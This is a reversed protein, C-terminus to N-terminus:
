VQCGCAIAVVDVLHELLLAGDDLKQLLVVLSKFETPSCYPEVPAGLFAFFAARITFSRPCLGSCFGIDAERPRLFVYNSLLTRSFNAFDVIFPRRYCTAPEATPQSVDGSGSEEEDLETSRKFDHLENIPLTENADLFLVLLPNALRIVAEAKREKCELKAQFLVELRGGLHSNSSFIAHLADTVAIEIWGSPGKTTTAQTVVSATKSNFVRASLEVVAASKTQVYVRLIGKQLTIPQIDALSDLNFSFQATSTCLEEGEPFGDESM